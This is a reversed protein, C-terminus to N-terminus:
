GKWCHVATKNIITSTQQYKNICLLQFYHSLQKQNEVQKNKNAVAAEKFSCCNVPIITLTALPLIFM